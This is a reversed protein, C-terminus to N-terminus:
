GSKDDGDDGHSDLINRLEDLEKRSTKRGSLAHMMLQSASGEFVRQLVDAVVQRKTHEAPRVAEYIHARQSEDRRVTGKATMIQLLKLTGTYGTNKRDSLSEHVDRVTSPGRAWLVRLIDLEATTPKAALKKM